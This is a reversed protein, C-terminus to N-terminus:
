AAVKGQLVDNWDHGYPAPLLSVRWGLGHARAALVHAAARGVRDGDAAIILKGPEIPLHLAKMGGASLAALVTAPSTLLGCALSLATEIGEAVVLPGLKAQLRVAGGAVSGLMAKCPEVSAKGTGNTHLYTRHVSVADAGEVLAVLAPFRYGTAHWCAPHFRLRDPLCCTIGRGRLYAEAVTGGIPQSEAWLRAAQKARKARLDAEVRNDPDIRGHQESTWFIRPDHAQSACVVELLDLGRLTDVIAAFTCGAYFHALLRGNTGNSVSLAPTRTNHHAPCFAVGYHGHWRGGLAKTLMQADTM